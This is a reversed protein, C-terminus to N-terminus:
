FCTSTIAHLVYTIRTQLPYIQAVMRVSTYSSLKSMQVTGQHVMYGHMAHLADNKLIYKDGSHLLRHLQRYHSPCLPTLVHRTSLVQEQLLDAINEKKAIGTHIISSKETCSAVICRNSSLSSPPETM